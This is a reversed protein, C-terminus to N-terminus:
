GQLDVDYTSEIGDETCVCVLQQAKGFIRKTICYDDMGMLSGSMIVKYNQIYNMANHHLHGFHICYIPKDIMTIIKQVNNFNDYDGHVNLYNKGRINILNLTGDIECDVVKINNINNLRAKIYWPILDDLREYVPAEDKKSIRSHNGAVVAFYVKNFNNGLESLFWAILESVGMVQEIVNERNSIAIRPHINGSILDGNACVYCNESNHVKKIELIKILYQKLREFAIDSNYINWHNDIDAGYHIDNLGILLDNDSNTKIDDIKNKNSEYPKLNAITNLLLNLNEDKRAQERILKNYANRQDYFKIKEKEFEIQNLNIDENYKDKNINLGDDFGEQYAKFWKRYVSEDSNCNNAKNIYYAIEKSTIGYEKKNRFLRLKYDKISENDRIELYDM